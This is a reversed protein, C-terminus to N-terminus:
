KAISSSSSNISNIIAGSPIGLSEWTTSLEIYSVDTNNRGISHIDWCGATNGGTSSWLGTSKGGSTFSWGEGSSTFNYTKVLTAM